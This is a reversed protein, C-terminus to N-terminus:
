VAVALYAGIVIGLIAIWGGLQEAHESNEAEYRSTSM